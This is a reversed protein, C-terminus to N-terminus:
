WIREIERNEAQEGGAQGASLDEAPFSDACYRSIYGVNCEERRSLPLNGINTTM